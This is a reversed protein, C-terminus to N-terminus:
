PITQLYVDRPNEGEPKAKEAQPIFEGFEELLRERRYLIFESIKKWHEREEKFSSATRLGLRQHLDHRYLDFAVRVTTGWQRAAIIMGHYLITVFLATLGAVCLAIMPYGLFLILYILELGLVTTVVCTNMLFDFVSKEQTVFELYGKEKLLPILRAWLAISDMGYRTRPYDEFAAVANGLKTPLVMERRSPYDLDFRRELPPWDAQLQQTIKQYRLYPEVERIDAQGLGNFYDSCEEDQAQLETVHEQLTDFKRLQGRLLWKFFDTQRLKYGELLRILPFNFAYFTYSLM